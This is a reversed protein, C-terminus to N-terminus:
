QWNAALINQVQQPQQDIAQDWTLGTQQSFSAMAQILQDVQTSLLVQGNGAQITETRNSSSTYWNQVTVYDTSGHISLRLDNAQRSIVLDLPNIGADYAVRDASGGSDQVLDQGEGRGFLYTDSGSGGNIADNGLGGRLTDAGGSANLVNNASNGTLVNNLSNGTGNIAASGVLTLNELNSGLTWTVSSQVTDTGNNNSEVVSDGAGVVYTDNGAGGTLVNAASNGALVNSLSNGTGNIASSGTLTLNEVNAGLTYTLASHVTDTGGGAAEVVSDGVGIVYTDNGAGGTLVNAASNGTLVNDLSNGTGNIASSGSLTLNEVNTGLTYTINSQVTDFGENAAETVTDGVNDVVYTDDGQGGTLSDAGAAGDLVNAAVNGLLVNNLSNGTGNIAGTGTLTLDEVHDSLVFSADSQVLDMGENLGEVVVDGAGVIYTDNGAGGTLINAASNGALLNDLENGTGNIAASGILTLHEINAGLSYTVSSQVRDIGENLNEAVSDGVNDVVYVDHGEGGQLLDSGLGGDLTNNGSNGIVTNNTSSGTADISATGTLIMTEIDADGTLSFSVSTYVQDNGDGTFETVVDAANDVIFTDDGSGGFMQDAGAGGDLVDDGAQGNLSDNGGLGHITDALESGYLFADDGETGTLTTELRALVAAQDWVTGDAFRIEEIQGHPNFWDQITLTDGTANLRLTIANPSVGWDRTVTVDNPTAGQVEVTDLVGPMSFDTDSVTDQGSGGGWRYTDSGGFDYMGDNGAGGDYVDNGLGGDLYDNGAGGLLVDDGDNGSLSDNGGLGQMYNSEASGWLYDDGETGTLSQQLRAQIAAQDWVTGDAFQIREISNFGQIQLQDDSQALRLTLGGPNTAWDQTVFLTSPTVGPGVMVTDVDTVDGGWDQVTDIGSGMDFIYTDSGAMDQLQDNGSGGNLVDNGQGGQLMDNGTGGMLTDHGDNGWLHDDGGLGQLYDGQFGGSLYDTGATGTQVQQMRAQIAAADWVTGDVFQIQEMSNFGQIVLQDNTHALRLTLGGPNTAWDQTVLLMSPTVGQGVVVTDVDAVDWGWDQVTDIGSGVGFIYMDSGGIDRLIDSGTGGNLVDNGYGGELLDNGAGGLLTDQGEYGYLTDDGGLGFINDDGSTGNLFDNGNTGYIDAM